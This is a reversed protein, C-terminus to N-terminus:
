SAHLRHDRHHRARLGRRVAQRYEARHPHRIGGAAGFASDPHGTHRRRGAHRDVAARTAMRRMEPYAVQAITAATAVSSGCVAGFAAGRRDGGDGAGGRIPRRVGGRRSCRAVSGGQTAFQGMLLFLPIVSLDYVKFRAGRGIGQAHQAADHRQGDVWYGIAGPIFMSAPDSRAGGDVRAHPRVDPPRGRHRERWRRSERGLFADGGPLHAILMTLAFGPALAAYVLWMDLGLIMSEEGAPRSRHRVPATRWALLAVMAAFMLAGIGDLVQRTRPKANTTFFDVIINGGHLQCWPLCLSICMAIGFQTLEIDGAIPASWLARGAISAVTLFATAAAAAGGLLAFVMALSRLFRYM